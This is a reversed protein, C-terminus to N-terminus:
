QSNVQGRCKLFSVGLLGSSMLLMTSPEPISPTDPIPPTQGSYILQGGGALSYNQLALSNGFGDFLADFYINRGATIMGLQDLGGGLIINTFFLDASSSGGFFLSNGADLFLTGWDFTSSIDTLLYNHLAHDGVFGLYASETDWLGTQTSYNEFNGGILFKDGSGGVLYGTDHLILESFYNESPDSVYGGSGVLGGLFNMTSDTIKMTGDNVVQERFDLNANTVQTNGLNTFENYIDAAINKLKLIGGERNELRSNFDSSVGWDMGDMIMTGMNVVKGGQVDCRGECRFLGSNFLYSSINLKGGDLSYEGKSGIELVDNFVAEGSKQVFIGRGDQGIYSPLDHISAGGVMLRGDNLVYQGEGSELEGLVLTGNVEVEGRQIFGGKGSNGIILSGATELTGSKQSYHGESLEGNGLFLWKDVTVKGEQTFEGKGAEGVILSNIIKLTGNTQSYKGEGGSLKGLVLDNDTKANGAEFYGGSQNFVATGESGIIIDKTLPMDVFATKLTGESLNFTGKSGAEEAMVFTQDITNSGNLQYFKGEGYSGIILARAELESTGHMWYSGDGTKNVGLVIEQDPASFKGGTQEFIGQGSGGISYTNQAFPNGQIQGDVIHYIGESSEKRGLVLAGQIDTVGGSQTFDGKGADGIILSGAALNGDKLQYEGHGGSKVGLIVNNYSGTTESLTSHVGGWQEFFGKGASGIEVSDDLDPGTKSGDSFIGKKLIYKGESGTEDGLVLPREVTVEDAKLQYFNGKGGIGIVLNSLGVKASDNDVTFSGVGTEQFGLFLGPELDSYGRYVGGKLVFDGKGADGIIDLSPEGDAGTILTGNSLEYKGESGEQNGILLRQYVTNEGGSQVFQGTGANGITLLSTQLKGGASLSYEGTGSAQDGLVLPLYQNTIDSYIKHDGGKNEFEGRGSQGIYMTGDNENSATIGTYLHGSELTYSGNSYSGKGIIVGQNVDVNGAHHEFSAIGGEGVILTGKDLSGVQLQGDSLVFYGIAEPAKAIALRDNVLVSKGENIFRGIGVNAIVIDKFESDASVADTIKFTGEGTTTNGLILTPVQSSRNKFEGGNLEFVGKGSDGIIFTGATKDLDISLIGGNLVYRGESGEKKGIELANTITNKGANQEFYGAGLDGVIVDKFEWDAFSDSLMQFTGNGTSHKGLILTPTNSSRNDLRGGDHVFVGKGSEGVTFFDGVKGWDVSLVGDDLVYTGESGATKGIEVTNTLTHTGGTQYFNGIGGNGIVAGPAEMSGSSFNYAGLGGNQGLVLKESIKIQGFNQIFEGAGGNNGVVINKAALDGGWMDYIGYGKVSGMASGVELTEAVTVKSKEQQIFYGDGGRGAILSQGVTLAGSELHYTGEGRTGDAENASGLILDQAIHNGEFDVFYNSQTFTGSGYQGIIATHSVNLTGEDLAYNGSSGSASGLTLWLANNVSDAGIQNFSGSGGIWGVFIGSNANLVAENNLEYSGGGASNVGVALYSDFVAKSFGNQVISGTGYYGVFAPGKVRLESDGKLVVEGYAGSQVGAYLLNDIEARGANLNLAGNGSAGVTLDRDVDLLTGAPGDILYSGNSGPDVGITVNQLAHTTGAYQNFTGTGASTQGIWFNNSTLGGANQNLIMGHNIHINEFPIGASTGHYNVDTTYVAPAEYDGVNSNNLFLSDGAAPLRNLYTNHSYGSLSPDPNYEDPLYPHDTDKYPYWNLADNWDNSNIGTWYLDDAHVQCAFCLFFAATALIVKNM